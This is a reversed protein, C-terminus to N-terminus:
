SINSFTFTQLAFFLAAFPRCLVFLQIKAWVMVEPLHKTASSNIRHNKLPIYSFKGVDDDEIAIASM